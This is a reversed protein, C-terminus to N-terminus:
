VNREGKIVGSAAVDFFVAKSSPSPVPIGELRFGKIHFEVADRMRERVKDITKGTAACGPLGPAYSSYGTQTEELIVLYEM